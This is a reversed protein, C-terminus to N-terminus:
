RVLTKVVELSEFGDRVSKIKFTLDPQLTGSDAIEDAIPYTYDTGTLGTETRLLTGGADSYIGLTTTQGVELTETPDTQKRIAPTLRNRNKWEVVVEGSPVGTDATTINDVIFIQASSTGHYEYVGIRIKVSSASWTAAASTFVLSWSGAYVWFKWVNTALDNEIRLKTIAYYAAVGQSNSGGNSRRWVFTDQDLYFTAHNTPTAPDFIQVFSGESVTGIGQFSVVDLEVKKGQLNFANVTTLSAEGSAAHLELRNSTESATSTGPHIVSWKSPDISNDNFDDFFTAASGISSSDTYNVDAVPYPKLARNLTSM